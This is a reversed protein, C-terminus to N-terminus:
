IPGKELDIIKSIEPNPPYYIILVSDGVNFFLDYKIEINNVEANTKYNVGNVKYNCIIYIDSKRRNQREKVIGITTKNFKYLLNNRYISLSLLVFLIVYFLILFIYVILKNKFNINSKFDM